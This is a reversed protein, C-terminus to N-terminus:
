GRERENRRMDEVVDAPKAGMAADHFIKCVAQVHAPDADAYHTGAIIQGGHFDPDCIRITDAEVLRILDVAVEPINNCNPYLKQLFTLAREKECTAFAFM